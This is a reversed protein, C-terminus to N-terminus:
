RSPGRPIWTLLRVRRISMLQRVAGIVLVPPAMSCIRSVAGEAVGGAVLQEGRDGGPEGGLGAGAVQDGAEAAVLEDHEGM